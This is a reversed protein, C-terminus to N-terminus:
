RVSERKDSQYRSMRMEKEARLQQHKKPTSDFTKKRRGSCRDQIVDDVGTAVTVMLTNPSGNRSRWGLDRKQARLRKSTNVQSDWLGRKGVPFLWAGQWRGFRSRRQNTRNRHTVDSDICNSIGLVMKRRDLGSNM